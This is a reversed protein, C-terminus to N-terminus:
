YSLSLRFIDNLIFYPINPTEPSPVLTFLQTFTLPKDGEDLVLLGTVLVVFCSETTPQVDATNIQHAVRQFSLGSLKEMISTVGLHQANEFTLMSMDRYLVGLQTRDEDFIKYYLKVFDDPGM